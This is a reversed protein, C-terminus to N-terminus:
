FTGLDLGPGLGLGHFQGSVPVLGISKGFLTEPLPPWLFAWAELGIGPGYGM